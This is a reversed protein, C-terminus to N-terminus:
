FVRRPRFYNGGDLSSSGYKQTTGNSWCKVRILIGNPLTQKQVGKSKWFAYGKFLLSGLM